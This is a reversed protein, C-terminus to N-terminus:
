NFDLIQQYLHRSREHNRCQTERRVMLPDAKQEPPGDADASQQLLRRAEVLNEARVEIVALNGSAALVIGRQGTDIVQGFLSRADEM